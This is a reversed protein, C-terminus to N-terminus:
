RHCEGRSSFLQGRRMRSQFADRRRQRTEYSEGARHTRELYDTVVEERVIDATKVCVMCDGWRVLNQERCTGDTRVAVGSISSHIATKTRDVKPRPECIERFNEDRFSRSAEEM